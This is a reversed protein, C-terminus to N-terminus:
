DVWIPATLLASRPWGASATASAMMDMRWANTACRSPALTRRGLAIHNTLLAGAQALGIILLGRFWSRWVKAGPAIGAGPSEISAEALRRDCAPGSIASIPSPAVELKLGCLSGHRVHVLQQKTLLSRRGPFGCHDNITNNPFDRPRTVVIPMLFPIHHAHAARTISALTVRGTRAFDIAGVRLRPGKAM